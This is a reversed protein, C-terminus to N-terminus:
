KKVKELSEEMFATIKQDGISFAEDIRGKVRVESNVEPLNKKTVVTIEGSKDKVKYFKLVVFFSTRDKVEGEITVEKGGYAQPNGLIKEIRVHQIHSVYYWAGGGAVIVLVAVALAVILKRTM